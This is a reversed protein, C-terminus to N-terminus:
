SAEREPPRKRRRAELGLQIRQWVEFRNVHIHPPAVIGIKTQEGQHGLVVIEIEDGIMIKEGLRRGLVLM